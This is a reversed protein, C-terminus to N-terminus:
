PNEAVLSPSSSSALPTYLLRKAGAV